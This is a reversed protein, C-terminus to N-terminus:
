SHARHGRESVLQRPHSWRLMMLIPPVLGVGLVMAAGSLSTVNGALGMVGAALIWTAAVANAQQLQMFSVTHRM